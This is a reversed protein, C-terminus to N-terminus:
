PVGGGHGSPAYLERGDDELLKVLGYADIAFDRLAPPTRGVDVVVYGIRARELFGPARQKVEDLDAQSVHGGQSLDMLSRVTISRLQREVENDSIRSLYGGILRKEHHTQYFQSAASYDGHSWEGDRMGLPLELVRIDRPDAAIARYVAPIRASYLTRPYPSLEFMLALTVAALVRRRAAPHAHTIRRLAAAFLLALLMMAAVAYRGPMRTATLIPVYRLLAWPGPVFTNIGGVHVFPGLALAALFAGLVVWVRAPRFRYRWVAVGIILIGTLTLSGVNDTLGNPRSSLWERWPQGFLSHNPNPAFLALLDVGAPSSRWMTPGHLVAGDLLARGYAVLVPALLLASTGALITGFRALSALAPIRVEFAVRRRLYGRLMVLVTLALVPTYLSRVAITHRFVHVDTGKTVLVVTIVGAVAALLVDVVRAPSRVWPAPTRPRTRVSRLAVYGAALVLCFVGYYPDCTAAWALAAGAAVAYRRYRTAEACRLLLVFVPLPAAAALSFHEAGRAILIPSFGFLLGALWAEATRKVVSRALLFMSWATVVSLALYIVNFTAPVGLWPLLPFALLDAFITYNHLSLNVPPSLSLIERTAFPFRGHAVIEHRFLWQNWVYAGTDGGVTGPLSASLDLPLPWNFLVAVVGYMALARVHVITPGLAAASAYLSSSLTLTARPPSADLSDSIFPVHLRM